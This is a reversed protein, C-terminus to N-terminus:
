MWKESRSDSDNIPIKSKLKNSEAVLGISKLLSAQVELFSRRFNVLDNEHKNKSGKIYEGVVAQIQDNNGYPINDNFIENLHIAMKNLVFKIDNM